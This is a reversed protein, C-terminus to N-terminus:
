DGHVVWRMQEVLRDPDTLHGEGSEVVVRAGPVHRGLWAGHAAPVLVDKVGYRVEVPVRIASLEFGWPAIFALDDDVWGWHGGAVLDATAERIVAGVDPRALVARDAEDVDWAEGLLASPDDAVRGGMEALERQLETALRAEGELAWSFETVNMQDMGMFFSLGVADFPAVGVVCRARLVRDPLAAAVALCHPGGGSGGQVAFRAIGLHDAIATVDPVCDVIRRGPLRQSRGYGPRDYTIVRAGLEHYVAENPACNLRGGPTGHLAFLPIGDPPGWQAFCVVRGDPTTVEGAGRDQSM